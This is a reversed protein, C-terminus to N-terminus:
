RCSRARALARQFRKRAAEHTLGLRDAAERQSLGEIAVAAVLPGDDGLSACLRMADIRSVVDIEVSSIEREEPEHLPASQATRAWEGALTRRLDREVNRLVTAAIREVSDLDLRRITLTAQATIDSALDEGRGRYHRRLRAHVGDLGPWLVLLM